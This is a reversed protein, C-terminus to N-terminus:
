RTVWAEPDDALLNISEPLRANAVDAVTVHEVVSRLNKRVAIWVRPLQSAVGPYDAEEPKGGRVTALPGEVARIIDAITIQGPDKALRYGGDAGRQSRVVGAIRLDSLIHELFNVPLGQSTAIREAPVPKDDPAAALEIAARVAYDAKASIRMTAGKALVRPRARLINIIQSVAERASTTSTDVRLEPHEPPEYPADVGTFGKIEGARARAYLGKPDRRACEEVSTDVFVEVFPLDAQEHAKRLHARDAALPSILSVLAITGSDAMLRAVQGVRRIHESREGPSFGLDESLGHRINDGDLLYASQGSDVLRRELEVAITSKGSAPLGTLLVTAGRQDIALWRDDRDLASPHWTIDRRAGRGPEIARPTRIVGAAVTENNDEDILIFAGTVRGRAYPDAVVASSTRLRVQGIDNIALSTPELLRELTEPDTRETIEQVTARVTRTAHKLAFRRGPYLPDESMWCVTADLERASVPQDDPAALVDGRGVDLRDALQFTVSMPPVAAQAEGDLTDLETITTSTGSPLVVVEDGVALTGAAIRGMYLRADGATPRGVWQVPLRLRSLDRDAQIDVEELYELLTPGDYFPTRESGLAVNDGHLASIPIVTLDPIGLRRVMEYVQDFIEEFRERDWSVLDMKNVCVVIHEIGLLSAIHAHRRTQTVVGARADVLVLAVDATSAGTFMNRTYREHGPTDALIFSRRATSFFRYAVDITIGQEREARLGDTVAALDLAGGRSVEDLNDALLSGTDLLLRGILTSKGDDVSGATALRLLERQRTLEAAAM